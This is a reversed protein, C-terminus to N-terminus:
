WPESEESTQNRQQYQYLFKRRLLGAPDDPVRRMLQERSSENQAEADSLLGETPEDSGEPENESNGSEESQDADGEQQAAGQQSETQESPQSDEQGGGDQEGSEESDSQSESGEGGKKDQSQSQEENKRKDRNQQEQQQQEQKQQELLQEVLEKNARADDHGPEADLVTEYAEIAAQYDGQRALSNGRNYDAEVGDARAFAEAAAEYEGARYLATGKWAPDDFAEAAAEPNEPLLKAGQQDGREWLDQWELAHAPQPLPLTVALLVVALGGRRWALLALPLLLWILWYGDDVWLNLRRELAEAQAEGARTRTVGLAELDDDTLSLRALRASARDSLEQLEQTDLKPTVLEGQDRLFGREPIPIPAGGRTGVALILLRYGSDEVLSVIEQHYRSDVGDTVLLIAGSGRAGQKLLDIAVAVARDARSGMAPMMFPDLAPLLNEIARRDDTLPTVLHADGAYAVLGTFADARLPILDRIKQKARTLRDPSEDTALMSLSLDLAIVLSDPLKELPNPAKRWSPGALAIAAIILLMAAWWGQGRRVVGGSSAPMLPALLPNPIVGEWGSGEQRGRRWLWVVVPVLLLLLLWAPRLFHLDAM